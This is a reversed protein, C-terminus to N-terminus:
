WVEDGVPKGFHNEISEDRFDQLTANAFIDKLTLDSLSPSKPEVTFSNPGLTLNLSAGETLSLGSLFKSPIRIGFGNGWKSVKAVHQINKM